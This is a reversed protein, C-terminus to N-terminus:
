EFRSCGQLLARGIGHSAAICAEAVNKLEVKDEHPQVYGDHVVYVFSRSALGHSRPHALADMLPVTIMACPASVWAPTSAKTESPTGIASRQKM